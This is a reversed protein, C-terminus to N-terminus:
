CFKLNPHLAEYGTEKQCYCDFFVCFSVDFKVNQGQNCTDFKVKFLFDQNKADFQRLFLAEQLFRFSIIILMLNLVNLSANTGYKVKFM